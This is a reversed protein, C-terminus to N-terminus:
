CSISYYVVTSCRPISDHVLNQQVYIKISGSVKGDILDLDCVLQFCSIEDDMSPKVVDGGSMRKAINSLVEQNVSLLRQAIDDFKQTKALLYGGTTSSKVQQHSFTVFPFAMDQQFCKDHYMLLHCVHAKESLKCTGIGGLGHPFLWPFIQPYLNLNNYISQMERDHSFALAGGQNNWHKLAIGKLENVSKTNMQEGTLGHVVFLCDGQAVGDAPESDFVSTGEEPKNFLSYQYQISVPPCDKPYQALEACLIDIDACYSHNLKLWELTHTVQKRRIMLPTQRFEKETPKCPGTFLIALVDDLYKVQLPLQKYFRAVPSEFAIVHSAM